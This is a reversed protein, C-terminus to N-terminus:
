DNDLIVVRATRNGGLTAATPSHLVVTARETGEVAPDELIPITFSRKGAAGDGWRLTGRGDTYDEGATATGDDSRWKVSVPGWLSGTREVDIQVGPGVESGVFRGSTFELRTESAIENSGVLRSIRLKTGDAWAVLLRGDPQRFYGSLLTDAPPAITSNIRGRRHFAPDLEGSALTRAITLAKYRVGAISLAGGPRPVVGACQRAIGLDIMQMGGPGWSTDLVGSASMKGILTGDTEYTVNSRDPPHLFGCVIINGADDRAITAISDDEFTNPRYHFRLGGDGFNTDIEGNADLKAVFAHDAAGAVYINADKDLILASAGGVKGLGIPISVSGNSGFSSVPAGSFDVRGVLPKNDAGAGALLLTDNSDDVGLGVWTLSADVRLRGGTGFSGDLKGNSSYRLVEFRWPWPGGSAEIAVLVYLRGASDQAMSPSVSYPHRLLDEGLRTTVTGDTGFTTDLDGPAARVPPAFAMSLLLGVAAWSFCRLGKSLNM